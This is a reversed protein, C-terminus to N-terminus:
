AAIEGLKAEAKALQRACREARDGSIAFDRRAGDSPLFDNLIICTWKVRYADRLLRARIAAAPSLQLSASLCDIFRDFTDQPTPIEPCAYFDVVLKAPDDRGAYEFDLFRLVGDPGLLANHFGFDSPSAIMDSEGVPAALALGAVSAGEEIGARVRSWTPYLVRAILRGAEECHPADPDLAVLRALRREVTAIHQELSLCAESALPLAAIARPAANVTCIFDAAGDVHAATITRADLKDGSLFSYLGAHAEPESALPEPIVEVGRSLAYSLFSWEADLRDRSDRPDHFYSKLVVDPGEVLAVRFVRNNKGGALRELSRPSALGAKRSLRAAIELLAGEEM